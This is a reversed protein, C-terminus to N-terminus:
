TLAAYKTVGTIVQVIGEAMRLRRVIATVNRSPLEQVVHELVTAGIRGNAGDATSRVLDNALKM